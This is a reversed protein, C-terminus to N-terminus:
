RHDYHLSGEELHQLLLACLEAQSTFASLLAQPQSTHAAATGVARCEPQSQEM